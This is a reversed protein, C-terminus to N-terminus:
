RASRNSTRVPRWPAFPNTVGDLAPALSPCHRLLVTRMSNSRVWAFGEPTYVEPRFDTTFFRDAELRRTAMLVFIRFATDSFGFGKPKPEAYLGVMLDVREVDGYVAALERAWVPNDTIDNFDSAPRLRLMRRFDNYRPVGRERVRLVDISALDLVSGDPRELIQLHRPYNHLTLAGPHARGFSYALDEISMERFRTRVHQMALGPLTHEAIVSDDTASRFVFDDPILPHMRYVAVFEETLSYPVDHLNTPSGPIGCILANRTGRRLFEAVREGFLGFWNAHMAYVTTPHGIIAPTWDVTHIKAMVATNVLRATDYLQQDSMDPHATGLHDCITNHERMFLSHLIALGVWFNAATESQSAIKEVDEPPLGLRDLRLRGGQGTRLADAFVRNSGYLQSGDWWHTDQSVYTPPGSADASPDPPTRRIRMQEQPWPDDSELPVDWPQSDTTGHSFWDHVEFQIWAAALANLTTAPVFEDRTLLRRSVSRPNPEMLRDPPEPFTQNLPANRGFRSGVSGMLPDDLNNYTGDITRAARHDAIGPDHQPADLAGRGSDFLNDSQLARRLTYLVAIGAMKPLRPWGIFRDIQTGFWSALRTPVAKETM